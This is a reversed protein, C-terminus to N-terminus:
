IHCWLFVGDMGYLPLTYNGIRDIHASLHLCKCSMPLGSFTQLTFHVFYAGGEYCRVQLFVPKLNRSIGNM